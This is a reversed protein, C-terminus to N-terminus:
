AKGISLQFLGVLGAGREIAGDLARRIVQLDFLAARKDILHCRFRLCFPVPSAYSDRNPQPLICPTMGSRRVLRLTPYTAHGVIKKLVADACRDGAAAVLSARQQRLDDLGVIAVLLGPEPERAQDLVGFVNAGTEFIHEVNVRVIDLGLAAQGPEFLAMARAWRCGGDGGSRRGYVM